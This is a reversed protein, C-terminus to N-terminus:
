EDGRVCWVDLNEGEGRRAAYEWERVERASPTREGAAKRSEEWVWLNPLTRLSVVLLGAHELMRRATHETFHYLHRPVELARWADGYRRASWSNTNPVTIQTVGGPKLVRRLERLAQVPDLTHELVHSMNVFDMSQDAFPLAQADGAV